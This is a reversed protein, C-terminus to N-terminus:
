RRNNSRKLGKRKQTKRQASPPSPSRLNLGGSPPTLTNANLNENSLNNENGSGRYKPPMGLAARRQNERRDQAKATNRKGFSTFPLTLGRLFGPRGSSVTPNGRYVVNSASGSPNNEIPFNTPQEGRNAAIQRLNSLENRAAAPPTSSLPSSPKRKFVSKLSNGLRGFFGKKPKAADALAVQQAARNANTYRNSGVVGPVYGSSNPKSANVKRTFMSGIRSGFGSLGQQAARGYSAANSRYKQTKNWMKNVSAKANSGQALQQLEDLVQVDKLFQAYATRIAEAKAM